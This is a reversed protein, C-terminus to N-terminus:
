VTEPAKFKKFPLPKVHQGFFGGKSDAAMFASHVTPEVDVYHYIATGRNFTVALTKTAADFGIAAIQHSEVPTMPIAVYPEESFPQPATFTKPM